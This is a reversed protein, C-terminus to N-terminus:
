RSAAEGATARAPALSTIPGVILYGSTAFAFAEGVRLRQPGAYEWVNDRRMAGLRVMAQVIPLTHAGPLTVGNPLRLSDLFVPLRQLSVLSAAVTSAVGVEPQNLDTDGVKVQPLIDPDITFRVGMMLTATPGTAPDPLRVAPPTLTFAPALSAVDRGEDFLHIDYIGATLGPPLKLEVMSTTQILYTAREGDRLDDATVLAGTRSVYARLFPRFYQGTVRLQGPGNVSLTAPSVAALVPAPTRMVRSAVFAMPIILVVLGVIALDILNFRGLLRGRSDLVAM